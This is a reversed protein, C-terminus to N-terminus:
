DAAPLAYREVADFLQEPTFPKRLVGQHLGEVEEPMPGPVSTMMVVPIAALAPTTRIARLTEPGDLVPMMSDLLVLDAKREALRLLGQKGNIAIEVDYGREGLMEAIVDALGFEDDVILIRQPM